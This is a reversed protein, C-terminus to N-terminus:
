ASAAARVTHRHAHLSLFTCVDASIGEGASQLPINFQEVESFESVKIAM